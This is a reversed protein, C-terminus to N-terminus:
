RKRRIRRRGGDNKVTKLRKKSEHIMFLNDDCEGAATKVVGKYVSNRMDNDITGISKMCPSINIDLVSIDGEESIFFDVGFVECLTNNNGTDLDKLEQAFPKVIAKLKDISKSMITAQRDKPFFTAFTIPFGQIYLEAGGEFSTINEDDNKSDTTYESKTYYILGDKHVHASFLNEEKKLILYLRYTVKHNKYLLPREAYEQAILFKEDKIISLPVNQNSIFLQEQLHGMTKFIYRIDPNDKQHKAYRTYDHPLIFTPPIVISAGSIKYHKVLMEWLSARNGLMYNKSVMFFVKNSHKQLDQTLETNAKDINSM